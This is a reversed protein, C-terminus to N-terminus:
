ENLAKYSYKSEFYEMLKIKKKIEKVIPDQETVAFMSYPRANLKALLEKAEKKYLHYSVKDIGLYEGSDGSMNIPANRFMDLTYNNKIAVPTARKAVYRLIGFTVVGTGILFYPIM